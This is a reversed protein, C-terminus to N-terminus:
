SPSYGTLWPIGSMCAEFAAINPNRSGAKLQGFHMGSIGSSTKERAKKWGQIHNDTSLIHSLIPIQKLKHAKLFENLFPDLEAIEPPVEGHHLLNDVAPEAGTRGFTEVAILQQLPTPNLQRFRRENETLGANEIDTKTVHTTLNGDADTSHVM